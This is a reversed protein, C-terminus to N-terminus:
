LSKKWGDGEWEALSSQKVVGDVPLDKASYYSEFNSKRFLTEIRLYDAMKPDAKWKACQRDIMQIVGALDVGNEALRAHIAAYNTENHRSARGSKENFHDVITKCDSHYRSLKGENQPPL